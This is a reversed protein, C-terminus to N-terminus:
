PPARQQRNRTITKLFRLTGKHCYICPEDEILQQSDNDTPTKKKKPVTKRDTGNLLNQLKLLEAKSANAWLGYYRVKAFGKPLIHQTFRQLFQEAPLTMHCPGKQRDIYRFTVTKNPKNIARINSNSIAVRHVYRALYRLVKDAGQVSPKSYSYWRQQWLKAPLGEYLGEKKLADRVKARFIDSLARVPILFDQRAPMFHGDQSLGGGTILCHVHPHYLLTRTWTHLVAMMGVKAGVYKPDLCLKQIAATAERMIIGYVKTPHKRCLSHLQSPVTLVVHFYRCNLLEQRRKELWPESQKRYCKPCNRNKCSHFSYKERGCCDCKKVHGGYYETQCRVICDMAQRQTLNVFNKGRNYEDGFLSIVQALELM